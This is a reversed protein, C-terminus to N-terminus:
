RRRFHIRVAEAQRVSGSHDHHHHMRSPKARRRKGTACSAMLFTGIQTVNAADVIIPWSPWDLDKKAM